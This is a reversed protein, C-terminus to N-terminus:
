RLTGISRLSSGGFRKHRGGSVLGVLHLCGSGDRTRELLEVFPPAQWLSGDEIAGDIRPLEQLM